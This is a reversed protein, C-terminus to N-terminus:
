RDVLVVGVLPVAAQELRDVAAAVDSRRTSGARVVLLSASVLGAVLSTESALLAPPSAVVVVEELEALAALAAEAKETALVDAPEAPYVDGPSVVWLGDVDPVKSMVDRLDAEGRLVGALGVGDDPTGPLMTALRDPRLYDLNVLITPRGALALGIALNAAVETAGDEDRASTVQVVHGKPGPVTNLLTSRLNRYAASAADSPKALLVPGAPQSAARRPTWWASRPGRAVPITGLVPSGGGIRDPGTRRVRGDSYEAVAVLGVGVMAGVLLALLAVSAAPLQTTGGPASARSIVRESNLLALASEVRLGNLAESYANRQTQLQARAEATGEAGALGAIQGDVENIQEQLQQSADALQAKIADTRVTVLADAYTNAADAALGADDADVGITLVGTGRPAATPDLHRGLEQDVRRRVEASRALEALAAVDLNAQRADTSTAVAVQAEAHYVPARLGVYLLGTGLAVLVTTALVVWRRRLIRLWQRLQLEPEIGPIEM